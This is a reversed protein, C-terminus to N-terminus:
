RSRCEKGVRREESKVNRRHRIEDDAAVEAIVEVNRGLDIDAPHRAFTAASAIQRGRGSTRWGTYAGDGASRRDATPPEQEGRVQYTCYHSNSIIQMELCRHPNLYYTRM